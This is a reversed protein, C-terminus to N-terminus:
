RCPIDMSVKPATTMKKMDLAVLSTDLLSWTEFCSLLVMDLHEEPKFDPGQQMKVIECSMTALCILSFGGIGGTSVDNVDRMLVFQKLLSVIPLMAPYKRRWEDFVESGKIGSTNEFAMDVHLGTMNDIFKIIPVRASAIVLVSGPRPIGGRKLVDAFDLMARRDRCLLKRGKHEFEASITVMDMDATPLYVKSAFSGFTHVKVKAFSRTVCQRIREVLDNRIREEFPKPQVYRYFDLIEQHLRTTDTLTM